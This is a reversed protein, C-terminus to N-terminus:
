SCWGRLKRAVLTPSFGTAEATIIRAAVEPGRVSVEACISARSSSSQADWVTDLIAEDSVSSVGITTTPYSYDERYDGCASLGLLLVAAVASRLLYSM